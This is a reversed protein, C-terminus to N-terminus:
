AKCSKNHETIANLAVEIAAESGKVKIYRVNNKKLYKELQISFQRSEEETEIRGRTEFPVKEEDREIFITVQNIKNRLYWALKEVVEDEKSSHLATIELGADTVIYDVQGLLDYLQKFQEAVIYSQNPIYKGLVGNYVLEKAFEPVYEVSQGLMKLKFATGLAASSKGAGSAGIFSVMFTEAKEEMQPQITKTLNPYAEFMAMAKKLMEPQQYTLGKSMADNVEYFKLNTLEESANLYEEYKYIEDEIFIGFCQSSGGRTGAFKEDESSYIGVFHMQELNSKPVNEFKVIAPELSNDLVEIQLGTQEYCTRVAANIATEHKHIADGPLGLYGPFDVKEMSRKGLLVYAKGDLTNRILVIVDVTQRGQVFHIGRKQNAALIEKFSNRFLIPKVEDPILGELEEYKGEIIMKRIHSSHYPFDSDVEPNIIEFGLTENKEKLVNLIDEQNGTCFHTVGNKNCVEKVDDLWEEFTPVDEVTDFEYKEKAIGERKLIATLMKQRETASICNSETGNEYCSGILILVKDYERVLKLLFRKHGEHPTIWRGITAVVTKKNEQIIDNAM